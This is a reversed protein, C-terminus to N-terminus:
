IRAAVELFRKNTALKTMNFVGWQTNGQKYGASIFERYAEPLSSLGGVREEDFFHRMGMAEDVLLGVTLNDSHIMLVRSRRSLDTAIGEIFGRLDMVPLLNGRVNAIGKVWPKAQPVRTLSPYVLIEGIEGLSSVMLLEGIRFGIGSWTRRVEVQQPLGLAMGRSRQEIEKLLAYPTISTASPNMM